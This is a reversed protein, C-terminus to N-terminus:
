VRHWRIWASYGAARLMAETHRAVALSGYMGYRRSHAYRYGVTWVGNAPNYTRREFHHSALYGNFTRAAAYSSFARQNWIGSRARVEYLWRRPQHYAYWAASRYARGAYYRQYYRRVTPNARYVAPYRVVPARIAHPNVIVATRPKPKPQVKVPKRQPPKAPKGKDGAQSVSPMLLVALAAFLLTMAIRAIPHTV